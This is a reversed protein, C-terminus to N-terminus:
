RREAVKPFHLVIQHKDMQISQGDKVHAQQGPRVAFPPSGDPPLIWYTDTKHNNTMTVEPKNFDERVLTVWPSERWKKELLFRHHTSSDTFAGVKGMAGAQGLVIREAMNGWYLTGNQLQPPQNAALVALPLPSDKPRGLLHVDSPNTPRDEELEAEVFPEASTEPPPLGQKMRQSPPPPPRRGPPAIPVAGPAPSDEPFMRPPPPPVVRPLKAQPVAPTTPPVQSGPPPPPIAGNGKSRRPPPPPSARGKGARPPLPPPSAKGKGVRPPLPPPSAKGKGARPPPPPPSAKATAPVELQPIKPLNNEPDTAAPPPPSVRKPQPPPGVPPKPSQGPPVPSAPPKAPGKQAPVSPPVSSPHKAGQPVPVRLPPPPPAPPAKAPEPRAEQLATKLDMPNFNLILMTAHDSKVHEVPTGGSPADYVVGSDNVWLDRGEELRIPARVDDNEPDLQDQVAGFALQRRVNEVLRARAPNEGKQQVFAQQVLARDTPANETWGDTGIFIEDGIQLVLAEEGDSTKVFEALEGAEGERVGNLPMPTLDRTVLREVRNALPHIRKALEPDLDGFEKQYNEPKMGQILIAAISEEKSSWVLKREGDVQRVVFIPSDGISYPRMLCPRGPETPREIRVASLVAGTGGLQYPSLKKDQALNDTLQRIAQQSGSVADSVSAGQPIMTGFTDLVAKMAERGHLHGGAGDVVLLVLSGDPAVFRGFGDESPGERGVGEYTAGAVVGYEKIREFLAPVGNQEDSEGTRIEAPNLAKIGSTQPDSPVVVRYRAPVPESPTSAVKESFEEPVKPAAPIAEMETTPIEQPDLMAAPDSPPPTTPGQSSGEGGEPGDEFTVLVERALHRGMEKFTKRIEKGDVPDSLELTIKIRDFPVQGDGESEIRAIGVKDSHDRLDNKFQLYDASDTSLHFARYRGGQKVIQVRTSQVERLTGRADRFAHYLDRALPGMGIGLLASVTYREPKLRPGIGEALDGLTTKQKGNLSNPASHWLIGEESRIIVIRGPASPKKIGQVGGKLLGLEAPAAEAKTIRGQPSIDVTVLDIAKSPDAPNLSSPREGSPKGEFPLHALTSRNEQLVEAPVEVDKQALERQLELNRAEAAALKDKLTTIDTIYDEIEVKKQRLLKDIGEKERRAIELEGGLAMSEQANAAELRSIEEALEEIKENLPGLQSQMQARQEEAADRAAELEAVKASEAEMLARNADSAKQAASLAERVRGMEKEKLERNRDLAEVRRDRKEIEKKAMEAAAQVQIKFEEFEQFVQEYQQSINSLDDKAESTAATSNKVLDILGDIDEEVKDSLELDEFAAELKGRIIELRENLKRHASEAVDQAERSENRETTLAEIQSKHERLLDLAEQLEETKEVLAKELGEASAKERGMIGRLNEMLEAVRSSEGGSGGSAELRTLTTRLDEMLGRQADLRQQLEDVTRAYQDRAKVAAQWDGGMKEYNTELAKNQERFRKLQDELDSVERNLGEIEQNKGRIEADQEGLQREQQQITEGAKGLRDLVDALSQGKGEGYAVWLAAARRLAKERSVSAGLADLVAGAEKALRTFLGGFIFRDAQTQLWTPKQVRALTIATSGPLEKPDAAPLPKPFSDRKRKPERVTEPSATDAAASDGLGQAISDLSQQALGELHGPPALPTEVPSAPAPTTQSDPQDYQLPNAEVLTDMPGRPKNPPPPLPSSEPGTEGPGQPSNDPGSPPPGSELGFEGPGEQPGKPESPNLTDREEEAEGVDPRPTGHTSKLKAVTEQIRAAPGANLLNASMFIQAYTVAADMLTSPRPTEGEFTWGLSPYLNIVEKLTSIGSGHHMAGTLGRGLWNLQPLPETGIPRGMPDMPIERAVEAGKKHFLKKLLQNETTQLGKSVLGTGWHVARLAGFLLCMQKWETWLHDSNLMIEPDHSLSGLLAHSGAFAPAEGLAIGTGVGLINRLATVVRGTGALAGIQNVGKFAAAEVAAGGLTGAGFAALMTPETVRRMFRPMGLEVTQAWDRSASEPSLEGYILGAEEKAKSDDPLSRMLIGAVQEATGVFEHAALLDKRIFGLYLRAKTEADGVEAINSIQRVLPDKLMKNRVRSEDGSLELEALTKLISVKPHKQLQGQMFKLIKETLQWDKQGDLVEGGTLRNWWGHSQDADRAVRESLTAALIGLDQNHFQTAVREERKEKDETPIPKEGFQALLPGGNELFFPKMGEWFAQAKAHDQETLKAQHTVLGRKESHSRFLRNFETLELSTPDLTFVEIVEWKPTKPDEEGRNKVAFRISLRLKGQFYEVRYQSKPHDQLLEKPHDMNGFFATLDAYLARQSENLGQYFNTFEASIQHTTRTLHTVLEDSVFKKVRALVQPNPKPSGFLAARKEWLQLQNGEGNPATIRGYDVQGDPRLTFVDKQLLNGDEPRGNDDLTTVFAVELNGDKQLTFQTGGGSASWDLGSFEKAGPDPNLFELNEQNEKFFDIVEKPFPIIPSSM